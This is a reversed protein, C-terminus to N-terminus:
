KSKKTTKEEAKAKAKAKPEAKVKEEAKAKAKPEAKVKEEVKAKAKAKPEAKTKVKTETKPEPKIEPKVLKGDAGKVGVEVTIHCTRKRIPLARGRATPISRKFTPGKTVIITTVYLDDINQKFNNKANYAASNIVKYLIKAAKKPMFRLLALAEKVKRGRVTGAVLNAKAPSIRIQRLIAKM